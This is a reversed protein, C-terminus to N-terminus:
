VQCVCGFFIDPASTESTVVALASKGYRSGGMWTVSDRRTGSEERMRVYLLLLLDAREEDEGGGSSGAGSGGVDEGDEVGGGGGIGFRDRASTSLKRGGGFFGRKVCGMAFFALAEEADEDLHFDFVLFCDRTWSWKEMSVDMKRVHGIQSREKM